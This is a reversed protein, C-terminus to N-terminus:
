KTEEDVFAVNHWYFAVGMYTSKVYVQKVSVREFWRVESSIEVPLLAFWERVRTDGEKPEQWRM